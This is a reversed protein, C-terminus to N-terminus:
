NSPTADDTEVAQWKDIPCRATKAFLKARTCGCQDCRGLGGRDKEHWHPCESCIKARKKFEAEDVVPFGARTWAAMTKTFNKALELLTM